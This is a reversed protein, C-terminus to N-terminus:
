KTPLARTHHSFCQCASSTPDWNQNGSSAYVKEAMFLTGHRMVKEKNFLVSFDGESQGIHNSISNFLVSFHLDGLWEQATYKKSIALVSLNTVMSTNFLATSSLFITSSLLLRHRQVLFFLCYHYQHFSHFALLM